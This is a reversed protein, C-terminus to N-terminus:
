SVPRKSGAALFATGFFMETWSPDALEEQMAARIAEWPRRMTWEDIAAFPRVIATGLQAVWRPTNGPVKLDLVAWRGGGSLAEAGRQHHAQKAPPRQGNAVLAAGVGVGLQQRAPQQKERRVPAVVPGDLEGPAPQFQDNAVVVHEGQEHKDRGGCAGQHKGTADPRLAHPRDESCSAMDAARGGPM